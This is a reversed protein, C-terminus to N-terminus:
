GFFGIISVGVIILIVGMWKYINVNEKLIYKAFVMGWMYSMASLSYIVSIEGYPLLMIYFVAGIFFTIIAIYLYKNKFLGDFSLSLNKSAFKNFLQGTANVLAVLIMAFIIWLPTKM